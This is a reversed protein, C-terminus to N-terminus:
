VGIKDGWLTYHDRNSFIWGNKVCLDVAANSSSIYLDPKSEETLPMIYVDPSKKIKSLIEFIENKDIDESKESVVFKLYSKDNFLLTNLARINIRKNKAEGSMSLKPSISFMIAKHHVQLIDVAISGNTEITIFHGRLYLDLLLNQFIPNNWYLLPEGGTIVIDKVMDFSAVKDIISDSSSYRDWESSFSKDVSYWTDCGLKTENGVKYENGFGVCSMNCGGFRIFISPHGRHRGESQITNGFIESIKLPNSGRM